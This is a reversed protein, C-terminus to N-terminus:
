SASRGFQAAGTPTRVLSLNSIVMGAGALFAAPPEQIKWNDAWGHLHVLKYRWCDLLDLFRDCRLLLSSLARVLRWYIWNAWLVLGRQSVFLHLTGV